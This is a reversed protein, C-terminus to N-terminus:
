RRNPTPRIIHIKQQDGGFDLIPGRGDMSADIQNNTHQTYRIDGDVVATV